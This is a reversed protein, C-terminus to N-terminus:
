RAGSMANRHERCWVVVHANIVPWPKDTGVHGYTQKSPSTSWYMYIMTHTHVGMFCHGPILKGGKLLCSRASIVETVCIVGNWTLVQSNFVPQSNADIVPLQAEM